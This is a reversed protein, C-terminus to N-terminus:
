ELLSGSAQSTIQRQEQELLKSEIFNVVNRQNTIQTLLAEALPKSGCLFRGELFATDSTLDAEASQALQALSGVKIAPMLGMDWLVQVFQAVQAQETENLPAPAVIALDLDSQPYTEARGFGGIAILALQAQQFLPQWLGWLLQELSHTHAQLFVLPQQTREYQAILKAKQQQFAQAPAQAFDPLMM